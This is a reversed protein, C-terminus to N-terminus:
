ARPHREDIKQRMTIRRSGSFRGRFTKVIQGVILPVLSMALITAWGALGPGRLDLVTSIGPLYVAGLLLLSCVALAAWVYPNATIENRIPGSGRDRMNFIHWLQAFALTLFSITVTEIPDVKLVALAIWFSGLVSATILGGYGFLSWWRGRTLIPEKPNRPPQDMIGRGGRGVGLALAPLSDTVINLFLIQLPLLPLPWNLLSAVFVTLIESTNASLLYFVFKRINGFIVRGEEVAVVISSFADDKLIMDAAERAVQSGRIGMAIGIDAKKLAPADNVGDGTMAVVQGAQKYFDILHLKQEPSVRAFVHAEAFQRRDDKSLEQVPKVRSGEITQHDDAGIMGVQRAISSATAAHDGTIMVVKMGAGRCRGIAEAVGARPPDVMGVLGLLTLDEYPRANLSDANKMAVALVRLGQEAMRLNRENWQRWAGESMRRPGEGSQVRTSADLVREPAGKVMVLTRDETEHFTAMMKVSSDFPEQRRQPYNEILNHRDLGAKVAVELLAIELPDGVAQSEPGDGLSANNCLTGAELLLVLAEHDEPVFPADDQFFYGGDRPEGGVAVDGEDLAIRTVTMKNETLTGTKDTCIVTTSGLTEVAALHNVLANRRAMRLMGRAMAITAVIPLGEPIAAVALAVATEIMLLVERGRAIGVGAVVVLIALTLWLLMRGLSELRKELPTTEDAAEEVLSSIRGIETAMGIATVVGKCSGATLAAGKFLMNTRESLPADAAIAEVQKDVPVSEGTLASENVRARSAEILRLDAGAIDGGELIVIDGPALQEAPIERVNGDRLVRATIREMQRLAEMSRVARTEMFFGIVTNIMIAVLIALGDAIEGFGFSVAAALILILVIANKFQDILIRAASRPPAQRIRNRGYRSRRRAIERSELGHDSSVGLGQLVKEPSQAWPTPMDSAPNERGISKEAAPREQEM